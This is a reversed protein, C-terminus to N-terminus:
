VTLVEHPTTRVDADPRSTRPGKETLRESGHVIRVQMNELASAAYGGAEGGLSLLARLPPAGDAECILDSHSM